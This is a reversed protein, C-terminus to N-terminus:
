DPYDDGYYYMDLLALFLAAIIPGLVFGMLGFLVIGGLSALFIVLPHMEVDHTLLTPRLLNDAGSIVIAGGLLVVIGKVTEGLLILIIGAPVWVISCGVGPVISAVAMIVGWTVAGKVGLILFMIGGLLGQIGGVIITVKLTAKATQSFKEMLIGKKQEEFPLLATVKAKFQEGDRLFFFLVYLMILFEAVFAVMDQTMNKLNNMILSILQKAGDMLTKMITPADISLRSFLPHHSLRVTFRKVETMMSAADLNLGQLLDVSELLLLGGVIFLPLILTVVIIILTSFAALNARRLVKRLKEYLPYYLGAM